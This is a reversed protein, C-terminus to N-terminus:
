PPPAPTGAEAGPRHLLGLVLGGALMEAAGVGIWAVALGDPLTLFAWFGVTMPIVYFAWIVAGYLLGGRVGRGAFGRAFIWVFLGTFLIRSAFYPVLKEQGEGRFLAPDSFAGDVLTVQLTGAVAAQVVLVAAVCALFRRPSM